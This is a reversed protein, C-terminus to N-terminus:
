QSCGTRYRSCGNGNRRLFVPKESGRASRKMSAGSAMRLIKENEFAFHYFEDGFEGCFTYLPYSACINKEELVASGYKRYADLNKRYTWLGPTHPTERAENACVEGYFATHRYLVPELNESLIRYQMGKQEIASWDGPIERGLVARCREECSVHCEHLREAYFSSLEERLEWFDM